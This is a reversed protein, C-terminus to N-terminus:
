LKELWCLRHTRLPALANLWAPLRPNLRAVARAVPPALTVRRVEARARPFLARLRAVPVGRVDPNYPNDVAFDYCLVGGGPRVWHWMAHALRIQAADDLVSSFVTFALVADQSAPAVDAVTADGEILKVAPPLLRRAAAAREAQLEIGALRDPEAGLRLLDLLNGGAGCGVEILDRGALDDWGHARWLAVMVRLREQQAQLAAADFLGYRRADAQADRRAYREAVARAEDDPAAPRSM